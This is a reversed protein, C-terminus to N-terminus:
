PGMGLRQLFDKPARGLIEEAAATGIAVADSSEGWGSAEYFEVGDESLIIGDFRFREEEMRAHGAIPTRCSGDLAALFARECSLARAANEDDITTLLDRAYRDAERCEIAVVGQGCAPPFSALPLLEAAHRELGLRKLGALALLTADFDGAEVRKLRTPVNGRLLTM